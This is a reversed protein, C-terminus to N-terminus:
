ARLVPCMSFSGLPLVYENGDSDLKVGVRKAEGDRGTITLFKATRKIVNFTWVCDYDCISRCNYDNGIQFTKAADTM